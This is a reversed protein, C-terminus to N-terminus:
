CTTPGGSAVCVRAPGAVARVREDPGRRSRAHPLAAAACRSASSADARARGHRRRGARGRRGDGSRDARCPRLRARGPAHRGAGRVRGLAVRRHRRHGDGRHGQRGLGSRAERPVGARRRGARRGRARARRELRRSRHEAGGGVRDSLRRLVADPDGSRAPAARGGEAPARHKRHRAPHPVPRHRDFAEIAAGAVFPGANYPSVARQGATVGSAAYSRASGTVWNDLDGATLPIYSPTGTTGSTSYIRVIESPAACLHAGIPNDPTCTARIEDKETLAAARDRRARGGGRGLRLGRRGAQRPLLGLARLPLRAARSLVRRRARAARGVAPKSRALM